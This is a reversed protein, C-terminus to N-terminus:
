RQEETIEADTCSARASESGMGLPSVLLELAFNATPSVTAPSTAVPTVTKPVAAVLLIVTALDTVPAVLVGMTVMAIVMVAPPVVFSLTRIWLGMRGIERLDIIGEWYPNRKHILVAALVFTRIRYLRNREFRIDRRLAPKV